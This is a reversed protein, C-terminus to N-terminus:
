LRYFTLKDEDIEIGSGISENLYLHGDKVKPLDLVISEKFITFFSLEAPYNVVNLGLAIHASQMTGIATEGQTGILVDIGFLQILTMVKRSETVGTRAPKLSVMDITDAQLERLVDKASFVSEDGLISVEPSASLFRNKSFNRVYANSSLPEEIISIGYENLERIIKGAASLSYGQNADIYLFVKEGLNKRIIKVMEVDKVPDIGGKLKFSKFGQEYKEVVQDVMKEPTDLNVMWTLLISRYEGGLYHYLPQEAKRAQIDYLAMDIAGKATFNGPFKNIELQISHISFPSKNLLIPEFWDKIAKIISIQSEGYITPRPIAEAYGKIGEDTHIIILVHDAADAQGTAWKLTKGYPIKFPIAEVEIIKM